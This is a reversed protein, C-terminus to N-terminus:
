SSAEAAAPVADKCFIIYKFGTIDLNWIYVRSVVKKRKQKM